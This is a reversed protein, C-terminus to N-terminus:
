LGLLLWTLCGLRCKGTEAGDVRDAEETEAILISGDEALVGKGGM